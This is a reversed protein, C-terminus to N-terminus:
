QLHGLDFFRYKPQGSRQQSIDTDCDHAALPRALRRLRPRRAPPTLAVFTRLPAADFFM